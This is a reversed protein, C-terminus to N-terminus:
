RDRDNGRGAGGLSGHRAGPDGPRAGGESPVALGDGACRLDLDPLPGSRAAPPLPPLASAPSPSRSTQPEAGGEALAAGAHTAPSGNWRASSSSASQSPFHPSSIRSPLR